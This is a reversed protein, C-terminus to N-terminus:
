CHQHAFRISKVKDENVESEKGCCLCTVRIRHDIQRSNASVSTILSECNPCEVYKIVPERTAM